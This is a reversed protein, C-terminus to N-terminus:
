AADEVDVPWHAGVYFPGQRGDTHLVVVGDPYLDAPWTMGPKRRMVKAGELTRRTTREFYGSDGVPVSQYRPDERVVQWAIVKGVQEPGLEDM